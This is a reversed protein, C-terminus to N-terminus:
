VEPGAIFTTGNPSSYFVGNITDYMGVVNNPNKCPVFNRILTSRDYLLFSYLRGQMLYSGGSMDFLLLTKQVTYDQYTISGTETKGEFILTFDGGQLSFSCKKGSYDIYNLNKDTFGTGLGRRVNIRTSYTHVNLSYQIGSETYSFGFLSPNIASQNTNTMFECEINLSSSGTVKTDIFANSTNEIYELQKYGSPLLGKKGGYVRRRNIMRGM